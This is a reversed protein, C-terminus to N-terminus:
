ENVLFLEDNDAVIKDLISGRQTSTLAIFIEATKCLYLFFM